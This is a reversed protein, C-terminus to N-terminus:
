KAEQALSGKRRRYTEAHAGLFATMADRFQLVEPRLELSLERAIAIAYKVQKDTPPVVNCEILATICDTVRRALETRAISKPEARSILNVLQDEIHVEFALDLALQHDGFVLQFSM